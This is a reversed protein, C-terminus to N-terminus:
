DLVYVYLLCSPVRRRGSPTDKVVVGLALSQYLDLPLQFVRIYPIFRLAGLFQAPFPGLELLHHVGNAGQVITQRIGVAQQLQGFLLAVLRGHLPHHGVQIFQFLPEFSQFEAPHKGALHIGVIGEHVNM